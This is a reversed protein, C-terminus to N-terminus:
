GTRPQIQTSHGQNFRAPNGGVEALSELVDKVTIPGELHLMM